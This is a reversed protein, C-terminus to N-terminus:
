GIPHLLNVGAAEFLEPQPNCAVTLRRKLVRISSELEALQQIINEAGGNKVATDINYELRDSTANMGAAQRQISDAMREWAEKSLNM